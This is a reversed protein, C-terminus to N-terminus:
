RQIDRGRIGNRTAWFYQPFLNPARNQLGDRDMSYTQLLADSIFWFGVPRLDIIPNSSASFATEIRRINVPLASGDVVAVNPEAQPHNWQPPLDETAGSNPSTRKRKTYDFREWTIVKEAPFIVDEIRNNTIYNVNMARQPVTLADPSSPAYRAAATWFVPSYFYSGDWITGSLDPRTALHDQFRNIVTVDSPSFQVESHLNNPESWLLALSFWHAAFIESARSLDSLGMRWWYFRATDDSNPPRFHPVRINAWAPSGDLPVGETRSFPNMFKNQYDTTYSTHILVSQKLNSLSITNRTALRASALAPLLLSVLIAIIAIVVLLEILTFGQSNNSVHEKPSRNM